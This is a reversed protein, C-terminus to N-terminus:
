FFYIGTMYGGDGMFGGGFDGGYGAPIFLFVFCHFMCRWLSHVFCKRPMLIFPIIRIPVLETMKM